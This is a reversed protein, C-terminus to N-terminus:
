RHRDGGATYARYKPSIEAPMSVLRQRTRSPSGISKTPIAGLFSGSGEADVAAERRRSLPGVYV